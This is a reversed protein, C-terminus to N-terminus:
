GRSISGSRRLVFVLENCWRLPMLSRAVPEKRGPRPHRWPLLQRFRARPWQDPLTQEIELGATAFLIRWQALTKADQHGHMERQGLIQRWVRWVITSANRVLFVFRADPKAVRIMERLAIARDLFRELSGVCTVADFTGDAFPLQESNGQRADVGPLLGCALEIAQASIDIGSAIVGREMAACLLLGPGCAVDLLRQGKTVCALQVFIPYARRPRLYKLGKKQYTADFWAAVQSQSVKHQVDPADAM